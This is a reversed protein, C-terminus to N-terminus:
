ARQRATGFIRLKGDTRKQLFAAITALCLWTVHALREAIALEQGFRTEAGVRPHMENVVVEGVRDAGRKKGTKGFARNDRHITFAIQVHM